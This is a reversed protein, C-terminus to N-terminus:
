EGYKKALQDQEAEPPDDERTEIVRVSRLWLGCWKCRVWKEDRISQNAHGRRQCIALEVPDVM